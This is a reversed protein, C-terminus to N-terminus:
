SRVASGQACGGDSRGPSTIEFVDHSHPTFAKTDILDAIRIGENSHPLGTGAFVGQDPDYVM